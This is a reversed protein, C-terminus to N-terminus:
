VLSPKAVVVHITKIEKTVMEVSDLVQDKEVMEQVLTKIRAREQEKTQRNSLLESLLNTKKRLTQM